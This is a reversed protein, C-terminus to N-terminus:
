AQWKLSKCFFRFSILWLSRDIKNKKKFQTDLLSMDFNAVYTKLYVIQRKVCVFLTCNWGLNEVDFINCQLWIDM